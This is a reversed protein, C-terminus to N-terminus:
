FIGMQLIAKQLVEDAMQFEKKIFDASKRFEIAIRAFSFGCHVHLIYVAGQTQSIKGAQYAEKVYDKSKPPM